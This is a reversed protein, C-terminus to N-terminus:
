SPPMRTLYTHERSGAHVHPRGAEEDHRVESELALCDAAYAQARYLVHRPHATLRASRPDHDHIWLQYGRELRRARVVHASPRAQAILGALLLLEDPAVQSEITYAAITTDGDSADTELAVTVDRGAFTFARVARQAGLPVASRLEDLQADASALEVESWARRAAFWSRRGLWAVVVVVASGGLAILVNPEWGRRAEDVVVVGIVILVALWQAESLPGWIPRDVDGRLWELLFRGTAYGVAWIAFAAGHGVNAVAAITVCAIWLAEVLQIPFLRMNALADSIAGGPYRVGTRAPRGHCCGSVLCGCRGFVLFCGLAVVVCDISEVVAVGVLRAVAATTVLALIMDELLVHPSRGIRTRVLGAAVFVLTTAVGFVLAMALAIGDRLLLAILVTFAVGLGAIGLVLYPPAGSGLFTIRPATLADFWRNVAPARSVEAATREGARM